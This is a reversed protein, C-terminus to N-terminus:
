GSDKTFTEELKFSGEKEMPLMMLGTGKIFLETKGCKDEWGMVSEMKGNDTTFPEM